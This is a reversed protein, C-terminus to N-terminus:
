LCWGSDIGGLSGFWFGFLVCGCIPLICLGVFAFDLFGLGVGVWLGFNCDFVIAM